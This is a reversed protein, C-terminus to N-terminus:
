LSLKHIMPHTFTTHLPDPATLPTYTHTTHLTHPTHHTAHPALHTHTHTHHPTHLTIQKQTHTHTHTHGECWQTEVTQLMPLLPHYFSLSSTSIVTLITVEYRDTVRTVILACCVCANV